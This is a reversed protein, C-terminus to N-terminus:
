LDFKEMLLRFQEMRYYPCVDAGQRYEPQKRCICGFRRDKIFEEMAVPDYVKVLAGAKFEEIVM